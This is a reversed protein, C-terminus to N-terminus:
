SLGVCVYLLMNFVNIPLYMPDLVAYVYMLNM